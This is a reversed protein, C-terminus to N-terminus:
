FNFKYAIKELPKYDEQTVKTYFCTRNIPLQGDNCKSIMLTNQYANGLMWSLLREAAATENKTGGGISWEYVYNCYIDNNDYYVFKKEYNTLTRKVTDIESTSSFMVATTNKENNMFTEETEECCDLIGNKSLLDEYKSDKAIKVGNGFDNESSFFDDSYAVKEPGNTIVFAMPVELGLPIRKKDSYHNAYKSLFTNEAQESELVNDLDVADTLLSDPLDSSEFLTPLNGNNAAETIEEEYDEEPIARVEVTVNPFKSCFDEKISEIAENETSNDALSFWVSIDADKLFQASKKNNYISFVGTGLIAVSLCAAIVGVFRKRKRFKKEKELTQVKKEGNIARLFDFVSKFRMHKEVAMAKMVANSINLPITPDTLHPPKVSDQIKRNTAEDPKIGTLMAYMTAGLAYIDSVAGINKSNDYQEVPSYGPKLIIDIVDDKTDALKAAGLDLLKIRVNKDSCIFINDPAVDRHIIGNKHLSILANGVENVIHVAFEKNVKGGSTSLYESLSEGELLEMVIYATSNEEFFEFVNPINKHTGFKAMNRAEALFRTKRYDFEDYSKKNVIVEKEGIARTMLRSAFFEKVAVITEFKNDFAKYIIGFGGAGVVEGLTYRNALLTGPPLYIPEKPKQTRRSGCFPCIEFQEDYEKFCSYCRSM